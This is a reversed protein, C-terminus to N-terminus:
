LGVQKAIAELEGIAGGEYPSQMWFVAEDAGAEELERLSDRDWSFGSRSMAYVKISAPDRGAERALRNLAERGQKVPAVESVTPIWGDAWNVIRQYVRQANLGTGGGIIIPPHPKQVPKPFVKVPPFDYFRGHFEAEDNGWITKLARIHELLQAYRHEFDGGMAAYEEPSWGTGIGFLVRGGSLHDLTGVSKAVLLPNREAVLCIATGLKIESTAGSARALTIMPDAIHYLAETISEGRQRVPGTPSPSPVVPLVTHEPVWYSSFGLEEARRASVASDINRASDFVFVGIDM